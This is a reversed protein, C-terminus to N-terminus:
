LPKGQMAGQLLDGWEKWWGEVLTLSQQAGTEEWEACFDGASEAYTSLALRVKEEFPTEGRQLRAGDPLFDSYLLAPLIQLTFIVQASVEEGTLFEDKHKERLRHYLNWFIRSRECWTTIYETYFASRSTAM